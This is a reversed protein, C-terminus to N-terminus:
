ILWELDGWRCYKVEKNIKRAVLELKEKDNMSIGEMRM